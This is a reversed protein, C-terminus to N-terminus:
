AQADTALHLERIKQNLARETMSLLRATQGRDGDTQLLAKEIARKEARKRARLASPALTAPTMIRIENLRFYLDSRFHGSAVLEALRPSASALIRLNLGAGTAGSERSELLRLLLRQGRAPLAGVQDVFLTGKRAVPEAERSRKTQRGTLLFPPPEAGDLFRGLADLELFPPATRVFPCGDRPSRRHLSLALEELREEGEGTMLVNLDSGAIRELERDTQRSGTGGSRGKAPVGQSDDPASGM